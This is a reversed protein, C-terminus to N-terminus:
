ERNAPAIQELTASAAAIRESSEAVVKSLAKIGQFTRWGLLGLVVLGGVFVLIALVVVSVVGRITRRSPRRLRARGARERSGM